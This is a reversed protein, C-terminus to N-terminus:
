TDGLNKLSFQNQKRSKRSKISSYYIEAFEFPQYKLTIGKKRAGAIDPNNDAEMGEEQDPEIFCVQFVLETVPVPVMYNSHDLKASISTAESISRIKVTSGQFSALYHNLHEQNEDM